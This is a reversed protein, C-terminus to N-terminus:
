RFNSACVLAKKLRWMESRGIYQDKFIVEVSDLSVTAPDIKNVCVDSYTRLQFTAAVSQEVSVADSIRFNNFYDSM